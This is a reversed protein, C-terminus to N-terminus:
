FREKSYSECIVGPEVLGSKFLLRLLPCVISGSKKLVIVFFRSLRRIVQTDERTFGSGGCSKGVFHRSPARKTLVNRKCRSFADDVEM